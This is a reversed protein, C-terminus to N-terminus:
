YICVVYKKWKSTQTAADWNPRPLFTNNVDINRGLGMAWVSGNTAFGCYAGASWSQGVRRVKYIKLM